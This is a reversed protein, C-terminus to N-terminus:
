LGTPLAGRRRLQPRSPTSGSAPVSPQPERSAMWLPRRPRLAAPHGPLPAPRVRASFPSIFQRSRSPPTVSLNISRWCQAVHPQHGPGRRRPSMGPWCASCRRSRPGVRQLLIPRYQFSGGAAPRGVRDRAGSRQSGTEDRQNGVPHRPTFGAVTQAAGSSNHAGRATRTRGQCPSAPQGSPGTFGTAHFPAALDFLLAKWNGLYRAIVDTDCRATVDTDYRAIVGTDYRATVGTDVVLVRTDYHSLRTM